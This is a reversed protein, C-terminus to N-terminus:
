KAGWKGARQLVFRLLLWGAFNMVIGIAVLKTVLWVGPLGYTAYVMLFGLLIGVVILPRLSQMLGGLFAM